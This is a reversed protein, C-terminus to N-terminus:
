SIAEIELLPADGLLAAVHGACSHTYDDPSPGTHLVWIPPNQCGYGTNALKWAAEPDLGQFRDAQEQTLFCCYPKASGGPALQHETM